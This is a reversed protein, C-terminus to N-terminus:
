EEENDDEEGRGSEQLCSVCCVTRQSHRACHQYELPVFPTAVRKQNQEGFASHKTECPSCLWKSEEIGAMLSPPNGNGLSAVCM